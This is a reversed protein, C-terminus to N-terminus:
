ISPTNILKCHICLRKTAELDDRMWKDIIGGELLGTIVMSFRFSPCAM